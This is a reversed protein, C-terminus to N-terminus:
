PTPGYALPLSITSRTGAPLSEISVRGAHREVISKVIALGLGSGPYAAVNSGRHFREFLLPLDAAPIGIGSDEILVVGWGALEALSARVQGGPATFKVANDLLNGLALGIQQRSGSMTLAKDPLDLEFALGAQDARSAYDEGVEQLLGVLDWRQSADPPDGAELRSLNLLGSALGELRQVQGLSREVLRTAQGPEAAILELNTHLATLPTNLEHAADAIFRRLTAVTEEVRQAMRNFAEGLRGLEDLPAERRAASRGYGVRAALDGSAMQSAAATLAEVPRSVRRSLLWGVLAALIAAALGSFSGLWAVSRIVEGGLAPGDSIEVFGIAQRPRTGAQSDILPYVQSSSSRPVQSAFFPQEAQGLDFGFFTGVAPVGSRALFPGGTRGSLVVVEDGLIFPRDAGDPLDLQSGPAVATAQPQSALPAAPSAPLSPGAQESGPPAPQSLLRPLAKRFYIYAAYSAQGESGSAAQVAEAPQPGVVVELQVLDPPGSDVLLQRDADLLRLHTQSLFSLVRLQAQLADAPAGEVVLRALNATIFRANADLFAQERRAYDARLVGVLIAGMALTALLAVAAYSFILQWRISRYRM